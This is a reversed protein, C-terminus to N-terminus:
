ILHYHFAPPTSFFRCKAKLTVLSRDQNWANRAMHSLCPRFKIARILQKRIVLGSHISSNQKSHNKEEDKDPKERLQWNLCKKKWSDGWTGWFQNLYGVEMNRCFELNRPIMTNWKGTSVQRVQASSEVHNIVFVSDQKSSCELAWCM